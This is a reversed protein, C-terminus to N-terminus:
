SCYSSVFAKAILSETSSGAGLDALEEISIFNSKLYEFFGEHLASAKVAIVGFEEHASEFAIWDCTSNFLIIPYGVEGGFFDEFGKNLWLTDRGADSGSFSFCTGALPEGGSFKILVDSKFSSVSELILGCFLDFFCLLPREFFWFVLGDGVFVNSPLDKNFDIVESLKELLCSLEIPSVKLVAM